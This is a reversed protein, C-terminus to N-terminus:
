FCSKMWKGCAGYKKSVSQALANLYFAWMQPKLFFISFVGSQQRLFSTYRQWSSDSGAEILM